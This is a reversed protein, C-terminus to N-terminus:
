EPLVSVTRRKKEPPTTTSAFPNFREAAAQFQKPATPPRSMGAPVAPPTTFWQIASAMRNIDNARGPNDAGFLSRPQQAPAAAAVPPTAPAPAPNVNPPTMPQTVQPGAIPMVSQLIPPLPVQGPMATSGAFAQPSPLGPAAPAPAVPGTAPFMGGFGGRFNSAAAMTASAPPVTRPPQAAAQTARDVFDGYGSKRIYAEDEELSRTPLPQRPDLGAMKQSEPLMERAIAEAKPDAPQRIPRNGGVDELSAFRDDTFKGGKWQKWAGDAGQMATTGPAMKAGEDLNGGNYRGAMGKPMNWNAPQGDANRHPGRLNDEAKQELSAGDTIPSTRIPKQGPPLGTPANAAATRRQEDERGGMYENAQFQDRRGADRPSTQPPVISEKVTGGTRATEREAQQRAALRQTLKRTEAATMPAGSWQKQLLTRLETDPADLVAGSQYSSM